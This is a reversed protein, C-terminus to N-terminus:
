LMDSEHKTTKLEETILDNIVIRVADVVVLKLRLDELECIIASIHVSNEATELDYLLKLLTAHTKDLQEFQLLKTHLEQYEDQDM